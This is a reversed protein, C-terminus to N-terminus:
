CSVNVSSLKDKLNSFTATLVQQKNIGITSRAPAIQLIFDRNNIQVNLKTKALEKNGLDKHFLALSVEYSNGAKLNGTPVLLTEGTISKM